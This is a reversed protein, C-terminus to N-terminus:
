ATQAEEQAIDAIQLVHRAPNVLTAIVMEAIHVLFHINAMLGAGM